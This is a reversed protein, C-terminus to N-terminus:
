AKAEKKMERIYLHTDVMDRITRICDEVREEWMRHLERDDTELKLRYALVCNKIVAGISAPIEGLKAVVERELEGRKSEVLRDVNERDM